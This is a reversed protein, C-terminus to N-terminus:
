ILDQWLGQGCRRSWHWSNNKEKVEKENDSPKYSNILIEEMGLFIKLVGSMLKHGALFILADYM